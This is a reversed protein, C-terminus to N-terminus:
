KEVTGSTTDGYKYTAQAAKNLHWNPKAAFSAPAIRGYAKIFALAAQTHAAPKGDEGPTQPVIVTVPQAMGKVEKAIAAARAADNAPLPRMIFPISYQKLLKEMEANWGAQQPDTADLLSVITGSQGGLIFGFMEHKNPYPILWKGPELHALSGREFPDPRDAFGTATKVDSGGAMKAGEAEIIRKAVNVRDRGLGCHV